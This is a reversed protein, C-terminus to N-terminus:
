PRAQHSSRNGACPRRPSLKRGGRMPSRSRQQQQGCIDRTVVPRQIRVRLPDVRRPAPPVSLNARTLDMSCRQPRRRQGGEMEMIEVNREYRWRAFDEPQYFLTLILSEAIRNVIFVDSVPDEAFRIRRKPCPTVTNSVAIDNSPTLLVPLTEM